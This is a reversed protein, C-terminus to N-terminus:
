EHTKSLLYKICKKKLAAGICIPGSENGIVFSCNNMLEILKKFKYKYVFIVKKKKKFKNFIKKFNEYKSPDFNIYIKNISKNNM